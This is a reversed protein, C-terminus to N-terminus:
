FQHWQKFAAGLMEAKALSTKRLRWATGTVIRALVAQRVGAIRISNSYDSAADLL